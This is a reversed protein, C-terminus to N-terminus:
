PVPTQEPGDTSHRRQERHARLKQYEIVLGKAIWYAAIAGPIGIIMSGILLPGGVTLFTTWQLFERPQIGSIHFRPPLQHPNSLLWYGLQFEFRLLLPLFPLIVDHLTVGIVAAIKSSRLVWAAVISLLTKLGLLPTFGFFVGVAFGTAIASPTDAIGVLNHYHQGFWSRLDFKNPSKM